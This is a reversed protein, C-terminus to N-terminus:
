FGRNRGMLTVPLIRGSWFYRGKRATVGPVESPGSSKVVAGPLWLVLPPPVGTGPVVEPPLAPISM